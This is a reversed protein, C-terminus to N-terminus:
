GAANEGLILDEWCSSIRKPISFSFNDSNKPQETSSEESNKQTIDMVIKPM